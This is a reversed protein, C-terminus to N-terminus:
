ATGIRNTISSGSHASLSSRDIFTLLTRTKDGVPGSRTWGALFINSFQCGVSVDMADSSYLGSTKLAKIRVLEQKDILLDISRAIWLFVIPM